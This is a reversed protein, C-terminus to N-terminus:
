AIRVDTISGIEPHFAHRVRMVIATVEEDALSEIVMRNERTAPATIESMVISLHPRLSRVAHLVDSCRDIAWPEGSRVLLTGSAGGKIQWPMEYLPVDREGAPDLPMVAIPWRHDHLEGEYSADEFDHLSVRFTRTATALEDRCVARRYAVARAPERVVIGRWASPETLRVRIQPLAQLLRALLPSDEPRTAVAM